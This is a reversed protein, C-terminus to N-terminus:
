APYSVKLLAVNPCAIAGEASSRKHSDSGAGPGPEQLQCSWEYGSHYLSLVGQHPKGNRGPQCSDITPMNSMAVIICSPSCVAADQSITPNRLALGSTLMERQTGIKFLTGAQWRREPSGTHTWAVGLRRLRLLNFAM